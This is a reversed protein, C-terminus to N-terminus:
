AFKTGDFATIIDGQALGANAAASGEVVQYIYIGEPMNYTAAVSSSVDVGSIGLYATDSDDVLERNIL